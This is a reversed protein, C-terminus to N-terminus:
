IKIHTTWSLGAPKAALDIFLRIHTYKGTPLYQRLCRLHYRDHQHALQYRSTRVRPRVVHRGNSDRRSQKRKQQCAGVDVVLVALVLLLCRRGHGSQKEEDAVEGEVRERGVPLSLQEAGVVHRRDLHHGSDVEERHQQRHRREDLLTGEASRRRKGSTMREEDSVDQDQGCHRGDPLEEYELCNSLKTRHREGDDHCQTLTEGDQEGTDDIMVGHSNDAYQADNNDKNSYKSTDVEILQLLLLFPRFGARLICDLTWSVELNEM